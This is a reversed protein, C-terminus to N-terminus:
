GYDTIACPFIDQIFVKRESGIGLNTGSIVLETGGEKVGYLTNLKSNADPFPTTSVDTINPLSYTYNSDSQTPIGKVTVVIPGTNGETSPQTM